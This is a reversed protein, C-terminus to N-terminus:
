ADGIRSAAYENGQKSARQWLIHARQHREADTCHGSEGLCMSREGYKNLIWAANSQAVEYGHCHRPMILGFLHIMGIRYMAGANWNQFSEDDEGRFKMLVEKDEEAGVHIMIPEVPSDKFDSNRLFPFCIVREKAIIPTLWLWRQSFVVEKLSQAHPDGDNAASEIEAAAGAMMRADGKSAASMLESVAAYYSGNVAEPNMDPDFLPSWSGPDPIQMPADFVAPEHEPSTPVAHNFDDKSIVLYVRSAHLSPSYLSLIIILSLILRLTSFRPKM